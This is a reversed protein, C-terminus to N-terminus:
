PVAAEAKGPSPAAAPRFSDALAGEVSYQVVTEYDKGLFARLRSSDMTYSGLM